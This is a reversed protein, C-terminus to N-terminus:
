VRQARVRNQQTNGPEGVRFEAYNSTPFDAGSMREIITGPAVVVVTKRCRCCFKEAGGDTFPHAQCHWRSFTTPARASRHQPCACGAQSYEYLQTENPVVRFFVLFFFFSIYHYIKRKSINKKCAGAMHGQYCM